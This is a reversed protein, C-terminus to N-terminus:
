DELGFERLSQAELLGPTLDSLRDAPWQNLRELVAPALPGFRKDLQRRLVERRGQERGLEQGKAVGKEFWTTNM